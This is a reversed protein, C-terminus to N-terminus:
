MATSPCLVKFGSVDAADSVEVAVAMKWYLPVDVLGGAIGVM